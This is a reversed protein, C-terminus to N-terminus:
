LGSAIKQRRQAWWRSLRELKTQGDLFQVFAAESRETTEMQPEAELAAHIQAGLDDSGVDPALRGLYDFPVSCHKM